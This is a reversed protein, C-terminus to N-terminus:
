FTCGAIFFFANEPPRLVKALDQEEPFFFIFNLNLMDKAIRKITLLFVSLM